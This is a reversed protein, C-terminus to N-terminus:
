SRDKHLRKNPLAKTPLVKRQEQSLRRLNSMNSVLNDEFAPLHAIKKQELEVGLEAIEDLKDIGKFNEVDESNSNEIYQSRTKNIAKKLNSYERIKDKIYLERLEAERARARAEFIEAKKEAKKADIAIQQYDSNKFWYYNELFGKVWRGTVIYDFTERVQEIVGALGEFNIQGPSSYEIKAVKLEEAIYLHHYLRAHVYYPYRTDSRSIRIDPKSTYLKQRLVFIKNLIDIGNFLQRFEYAKWRNQINVTFRILDESEFIDDSKKSLIYPLYHKEFHATSSELELRNEISPEMRFAAIKATLRERAYTLEHTLKEIDQLYNKANQILDM